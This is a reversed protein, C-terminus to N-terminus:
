LEHIPISKRSRGCHWARYVTVYMELTCYNAHKNKEEKCHETHENYRQQIASNKKLFVTCICIRICTRASVRIFVCLCVRDKHACRFSQAPKIKLNMFDTVFFSESNVPVDDKVSLIILRLYLM